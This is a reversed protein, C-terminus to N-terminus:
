WPSCRAAARSVAIIRGAANIRGGRQEEHRGTGARRRRRGRARLRGARLSALVAHRHRGRRLRRAGDFLKACPREGGLAGGSLGLARTGGAGIVVRPEPFPDSGVLSARGRRREGCRALPCLPMRGMVGAIADAKMGSIRQTSGSRACPDPGSRAAGRNPQGPARCPRGGSQRDVRQAPPEGIRDAQGGPEVLVGDATAASIRRPKPKTSVPVTVGRGCAPLGRGRSNRRSGSWATILRM